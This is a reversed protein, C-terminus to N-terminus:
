EASNCQALKAADYPNSDAGYATLTGVRAKLAACARVSNSNSPASTMECASNKCQWITTNVIVEMPAAIPQALTATYHPKAAMAGGTALVAIAILTAALKM